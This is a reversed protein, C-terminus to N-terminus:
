RQRSCLLLSPKYYRFGVYPETLQREAAVAAAKSYRSYALLVKQLPRRLPKTTRAVELCQFCYSCDFSLLSM